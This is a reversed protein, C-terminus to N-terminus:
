YSATRRLALVTAERPADVHSPTVDRRHSALHAVNSTVPGRAAPYAPPTMPQPQAMGRSARAKFQLLLYVYGALLADALLQLVWFIPSGAFLAMFFTIGAAALLGVLVDRRRKQQPTMGGPVRAPGGMPGAPGGMPSGPGGVPGVPGGGVPGMIPTLPPLGADSSRHGGLGEKLKAVFDGIGGTSGNGNRARLIPPLLVAAWLVALVLIVLIAL